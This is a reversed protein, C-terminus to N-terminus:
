GYRSGDPVSPLQVAVDRTHECDVLAADIVRGRPRGLALDELAERDTPCVVHLSIRPANLALPLVISAVEGRDM